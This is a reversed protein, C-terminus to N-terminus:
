AAPLATDTTDDLSLYTEDEQVTHLRLVAHLGYLLGRLDAIDDKDPPQDGIDDILRGLRAIQYAIEAHARSMPATPDAGGLLRNLAPYLDSEEASEHAWVEGVLLEHVHRVRTMAGPDTLTDAVTRLQEIDARIAPHEARFRRTLATDAATM